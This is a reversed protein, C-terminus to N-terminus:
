AKLLGDFNMLGKTELTKADMIFPLGGLYGYRKVLVFVCLLTLSSTLFICPKLCSHDILVVRVKQIKSERVCM